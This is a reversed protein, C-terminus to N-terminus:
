KGNRISTYFKQERDRITKVMKRAELRDLLVAAEAPDLGLGLCLQQLTQPRRRLSDLVTDPSVPGTASVPGGPGPIDARPGKLFTRWRNLVHEAPVAPQMHAGPRTMVTIDVRDHRLDKLFANIRELNESTDNIGAVLLVELYIKGPFKRCFRTLGQAVDRVHLGKCPRNLRLFEQQVLTDLSPLVVDVSMLEEQVQDDALLSSNTLVALPIHPAIRKIKQVIRGLGLNLCPEGEGGLTIHEPEPCDQQLLWSELEELIKDPDAYVARHMTKLRTPGSECYLCDFSCIRGGLLDVGLSRGLRSSLVPGFIYDFM